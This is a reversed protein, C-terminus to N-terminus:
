IASLTCCVVVIWSSLSRISTMNQPVHVYLVGCFTLQTYFSAKWNGTNRQLVFVVDLGVVFGHSCLWGVHNHKSRLFNQSPQPGLALAM